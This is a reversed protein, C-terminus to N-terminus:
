RADTFAVAALRTVSEVFLPVLFVAHRPQNM